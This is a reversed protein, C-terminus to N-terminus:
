RTQWIHVEEKLEIKIANLMKMRARFLKVKVNSTTLGTMQSLEDINSEDRYYRDILFVEDPQLALYGAELIRQRDESDLAGLADSDDSFGENESMGSELRITKGSKRIRSICTNYVIRYLWTSFRSDTRFSRLNEFAKIFSEQTCDRAEERDGLMKFSLHYADGQYKEVLFAFSRTKGELVERISQMERLDSM